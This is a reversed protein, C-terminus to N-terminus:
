RQLPFIVSSLQCMLSRLCNRRRRRRRRCRCRWFFFFLCNTKHTFCCCAKKYMEKVDMIRSRSRSGIRRKISSTSM